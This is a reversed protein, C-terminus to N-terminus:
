EEDVNEVVTGDANIIFDKAGYVKGIGSVSCYDFCDQVYGSENTARVRIYYTGPELPDFTAEPIRLDTQHSIVDTFNYDRALWFEYNIDEGDM